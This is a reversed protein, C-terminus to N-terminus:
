IVSCRSMSRMCIEDVLSFSLSARSPHDLFLSLSTQIYIVTKGPVTFYAPRPLRTTGAKNTFDATYSGSTDETLLVDLTFRWNPSSGQVADACANNYTFTSNSPGLQTGNFYWIIEPCPDARVDVFFNVTTANDQVILAGLDRDDFAAPGLETFNYPMVDPLVINHSFPFLNSVCDLLIM